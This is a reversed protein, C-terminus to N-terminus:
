SIEHRIALLNDLFTYNFSFFHQTSLFFGLFGPYSIRFFFFDTRSHYVSKLFHFQRQCVISFSFLTHCYAYGVSEYKTRINIFSHGSKMCKGNAIQVEVFVM